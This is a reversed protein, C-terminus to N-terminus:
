SVNSSYQAFIKLQNTPTTRTIEANVAPFKISRNPLLIGMRKPCKAQATNKIKSLLELCKPNALIYFYKNSRKTNECPILQPVTSVTYTLSIRGSFPIPNDNSTLQNLENRIPINKGFMTSEHSLILPM